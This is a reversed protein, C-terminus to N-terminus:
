KKRMTMYSILPDERGPGSDPLAIVATGRSQFGRPLHLCWGSPAAPPRSPWQRGAAVECPPCPFGWLGGAPDECVGGVVVMERRFPFGENAICLQYFSHLAEESRPSPSLLPSPKALYRHTTPSPAPVGHVPKSPPSNCGGPHKRCGHVKKNLFSLVM